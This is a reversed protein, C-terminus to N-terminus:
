IKIDDVAENHREMDAGGTAAESEQRESAGVCRKNEWYARNKDSCRIRAANQCGRCLSQHGDAKSVNGNFNEILLTRGCGPCTKETREIVM